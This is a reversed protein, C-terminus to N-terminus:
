IDTAIMMDRLGRVGKGQVSSDETGIGISSHGVEGQTPRLRINIFGHFRDCKEILRIMMSSESGGCRMESSRTYYVM